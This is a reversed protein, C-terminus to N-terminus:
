IISQIFRQAIKRFICTLPIALLIGWFGGFAGVYLALVTVSPHLALTDSSIKPTIINNEIQQIVLLGILVVIAKEPAAVLTVLVIIGMAVFAGVYPIIDLVAAIAGLGLAYPIGMVYLFVTDIVFLIAAILFQGKFFSDLSLKVDDMLIKFSPKLNLPVFEKLAERIGEGGALAYFAAVAGVVFTTATKIVSVVTTYVRGMNGTFMDRRIEDIGWISLYDTLIETIKLVADYIKPIAFLVSFILVGIIFVYVISTAIVPNVKLKKLMNVLPSLFYVLAFMTVFPSFIKNLPSFVAIMFLLYLVFFIVSSIFLPKDKM